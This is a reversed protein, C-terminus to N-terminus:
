KKKFVLIKGKGDKGETSFYLNGKKDFTIGEPKPMLEEEIRVMKQINGTKDMAILLKGSSAITFYFGNYVAIGSPNFPIKKDMDFSLQKLDNAQIFDNLLQKSFLIIPETELTKTNLDFAYIAKQHKFFAGEGAKKKCAILLCNTSADFGLGETDNKENLFTLHTIVNQTSKGLNEIEYITGNSALVYTTKGVIEIGEYDGAEAFLFRDRISGNILDYFFVIGDEDQICALEGSENITLGSIEKLVPPLEYITDPQSLNYPFTFMSQPQYVQTDSNRCAIVLLCAIFIFQIKMTKKQSLNQLFKLDSGEKTETNSYRM